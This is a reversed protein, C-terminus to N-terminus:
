KGMRFKGFAIRILGKVPSKSVPCTIPLTMNELFLHLLERPGLWARLPLQPHDSSLFGPNSAQLHCCFAQVDACWRRSERM